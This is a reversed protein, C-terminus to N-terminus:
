RLRRHAVRWSTRNEAAARPLHMRFTTWSSCSAQILRSRAAALEAMAVDVAHNLRVVPSPDLRVLVLYLTAIQQWDTNAADPAEDHLAAIAAQLQYPGVPGSPLAAEVLAVGEAIRARNWRTRDQDALPVIVIRDKVGDLRTRTATEQDVL